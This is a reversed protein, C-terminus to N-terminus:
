LPEIRVALTSLLVQICVWNLSNELKCLTLKLSTGSNAHRQRYVTSRITAFEGVQYLTKATSMKLLSLPLCKEMSGSVCMITCLCGRYPSQRQVSVTEIRLSGRYPSQRQVSVARYPFQRQITSVQVSDGLTGLPSPRSNGWVQVSGLTDRISLTMLYTSYTYILM